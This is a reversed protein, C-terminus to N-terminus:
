PEGPLRLGPSPALLVFLGGLALVAVGLLAVRVWHRRLISAPLRILAASAGLFGGVVATLRAPVRLDDSGAFAAGFVAVLAIVAVTAGMGAVAASTWRSWSDLQARWGSLARRAPEPAKSAAAVVAAADATLRERPPIGSLRRLMAEASPQRRRILATYADRERNTTWGEVSIGWRGAQDIHGLARYLEALELRASPRRAVEALLRDTRDRTQRDM